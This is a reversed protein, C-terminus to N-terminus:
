PSNKVDDGHPRPEPVVGIVAAAATRRKPVVLGASVVMKMAEELTLSSEILRRNPVVIVLGTMPNPATPIVVSVLEEDLGSDYFQGTVFGILRCGEAPYDVYVVRKFNSMNNFAKFSEIVQKVAAYITAVFPIKLLALEASELMRQGLVNTAMIGLGILLALTVLFPLLPLQPLFPASINNITTYALKLVWFTAILPIAVVVGTLAKNRTAALLPTCRQAGALFKRQWDGALIQLEGLNRPLQM